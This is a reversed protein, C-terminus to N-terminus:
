NVNWKEGNRMFYRCNFLYILYVIGFGYWFSYFYWFFCLNFLMIFGLEDRINKVYEKTYDFSTYITLSDNDMYCSKIPIYFIVWWIAMPSPILSVYASFLSLLVWKIVRGIYIFLAFLTLFFIVFINLSM